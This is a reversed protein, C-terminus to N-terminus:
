IAYAPPGRRDGARARLLSRLPSVALAPGLRLATSWLAGVLLLVLVMTNILPAVTVAVTRIGSPPATLHIGATRAATSSDNNVPTGPILCCVTLAAAVLLALTIKRM